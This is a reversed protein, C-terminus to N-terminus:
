VYKSFMHFKFSISDNKPQVKLIKEDIVDLMKDM